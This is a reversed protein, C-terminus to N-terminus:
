HIMPHNLSSEFPIFAKTFVKRQERYDKREFEDFSFSTGHEFLNTLLEGFLWCQYSQSQEIFPHQLTWYKQLFKRVHQSYIFIHSWCSLQSCRSLFQSKGIFKLLLCSHSTILAIFSHFISSLTYLNELKYFIHTLSLTKDTKVM